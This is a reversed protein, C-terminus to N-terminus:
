RAQGAVARPVAKHLTQSRGQQKVDPDLFHRYMMEGEMGVDRLGTKMGDRMERTSIAGIWFLKTCRKKWRRSASLPSGKDATAPSATATRDLRAAGAGSKKERRLSKHALPDTWAVESRVMADLM